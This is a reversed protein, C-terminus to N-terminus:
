EESPTFKPVHGRQRLIPDDNQDLARGTPMANRPGAAEIIQRVSIYGKGHWAKLIGNVYRVTRKDPQSAPIGSLAHAVFDQDYHYATRWTDILKQEYKTFTETACGLLAAVEAHFADAKNKECFLENLEPVTKVGSAYWALIQKHMPNLQKLTYGNEKFHRFCTLLYEPPIRDTLYVSVIVRRKEQSLTEGFLYQVTQLLVALKPDPETTRVACLTVGADAWYRLATEVAAPSLHLATSIADTHVSRTRVVFLAVRLADGSCDEIHELIAAPIAAKKSDSTQYSM